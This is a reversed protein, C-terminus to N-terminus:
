AAGVPSDENAKHLASYTNRAESSDYEEWIIRRVTEALDLGNEWMPTILNELSLRAKIVRQALSGDYGTRCFIPVM